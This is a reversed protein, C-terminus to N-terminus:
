AYHVRRESVRLQFLTVGFMALFLVWSAAAARGANFNVFGENYVYYILTNTADVPGGQTMVRIIDFAQFSSLISTVVLFFTIPSLQPLTIAWFTRLPGAGDISAAEYLDKPITQLGALYIIVTYGLNKWIYVIIIAAM